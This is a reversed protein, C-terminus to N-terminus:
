TKKERQDLVIPAYLGNRVNLEANRASIRQSYSRLLFLFFGNTFSKVKKVWEGKQAPLVDNKAKDDKSSRTLFHKMQEVMGTRTREVDEPDFGEENDLEFDGSAAM